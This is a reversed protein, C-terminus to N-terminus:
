ELLAKIVEPQVPKMLHLDCGAKASQQRYQETDSATVAIIRIADGFEKRLRRAVEFGSIGPMMLDLFVFEPRFTKALELAAYGNLAFEVKHGMDEIMIALAHASELSDDVVLVRRQHRGSVQAPSKM